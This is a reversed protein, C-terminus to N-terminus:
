SVPLMLRTHVAGLMNNVRKGPVPDLVVWRRTTPDLAEAWVHALARQPGFSAAVFRVSGGLQAVLAAILTAMDDCDGQKRAITVQPTRVQEITRPDRTYRINQRVWNLVAVYESVYDRGMLEGVISEALVRVEPSEEGHLAFQKMYRMTDLATPNDIHTIRGLQV